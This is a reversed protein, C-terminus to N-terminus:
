KMFDKLKLRNSNEDTALYASMASSSLNCVALDETQRLNSFQDGTL